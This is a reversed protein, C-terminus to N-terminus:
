QEGHEAIASSVLMNGLSHAAVFRSTGPLSSVSQKFVEATTLAHEVNSYYDPTNGLYVVSQSDNGYWTVATFMSRSGSQWLRKFMEAAVEDGDGVGDGDTDHLLPDTAVDASLEEGDTLGDGDTDANEPDTLTWFREVVDALGDGDSDFDLGLRYFGAHAFSALFWPRWAAEVENSTVAFACANPSGWLANVNMWAKVDGVMGRISRWEEMVRAPRGSSDSPAVFNYGLLVQPGVTEWLKGPSAMHNQPDYSYNGNYDNVDLISCSSFIM